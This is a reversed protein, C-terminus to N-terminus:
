YTEAVWLRGREDWNMCIPKGGIEPDAAFLKLDFGEPVVYHKMSEAPDLPLPMMNRPSEQEGWKQSQVYNPIKPGVDIYEIPRVDNPLETMKM